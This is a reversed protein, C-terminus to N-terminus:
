ETIVKVNVQHSKLISTYCLVLIYNNLQRHKLQRGSFYSTYSIFAQTDRPQSLYLFDNDKEIVFYVNKQPFSITTIQKPVYKSTVSPNKITYLM